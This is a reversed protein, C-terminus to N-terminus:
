PAKYLSFWRLVSFLRAGILLGLIAYFFFTQSDDENIEIMGDHKAQYRFMVYAIFFAVLYMVAYWRIPLGEIVFPDIWEPYKIYLPLMVM